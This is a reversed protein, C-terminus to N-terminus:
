ESVSADFGGKFFDVIADHDHAGDIRLEWRNGNSYSLSDTNLVQCATMSGDHYIYNVHEADVGAFLQCAASDDESMWPGQEDQWDDWSGRNVRTLTVTVPYVRTENNVIVALTIM